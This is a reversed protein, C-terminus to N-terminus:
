CASARVPAPWERWAGLLPFYLGLRIPRADLSRMAGAYSDLQARYRERENDLFADLGAGEHRSLKFDVIWRTGDADVFTRDLVRHVFAGQRWETLAFESHADAHEPDFLWRGRPDALTTRISALVQEVAITAEAGTFGLASLERAVGVRQAEARAPTWRDLGDEAIQRLLRHAVTGIQRATERVWDFEVTQSELRVATGAPLELASLRPLRWAPPLRTLPVGAGESRQRSNTPTGDPVSAESRLAPWIVALSSGQIPPKWHANCDADRDVGVTATLHLSTRARTCGVYLLRGLEADDEAATLSRLYAYVPDDDSNDV